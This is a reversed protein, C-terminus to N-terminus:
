AYKKLIDLVEEDSVQKFNAYFDSISMFNTPTEVAFVNQFKQNLLEFMDAAVVPSAISAHSTKTTLWEAVVLVTSGTAIGDDVLIVNKNALDYESNGRFKRQREEVEAKKISIENQLSAQTFYKTYSDPLYTVGDYTIAGIGFEPNEPPTLKKSVIVDLQLDYHKAIQHGIVVGGRPIALVVTNEDIVDAMKLALQNGADVRDSFM